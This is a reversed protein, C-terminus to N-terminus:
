TAGEGRLTEMLRRVKEAIKRTAQALLEEAGEQDTGLPDRGVDWELVTTSYPIESVHSRLDGGLSVIVHYASLRDLNSDLATPELRSTDFRNSEMFDLCRPDVAEAVAWGASAYRGSEPYAKRAYAEALQSYCDNKEDVFLVQYVKPPKIEGTVTFLTEECINKSQDVVRALRVFVALLAFLDQLPRRDEEGEQLLDAFVKHFTGAAQDAMAVTGRALEVNAENWARLAQSLVRRSQDAMLEVDRRVAASPPKSLRLGERCVSVAYDGVRELEINLRLVSSVFRLHGASPLHRAVFAHCQRDLARVERNIPLDALITEGALGRDGSLLAHVASQQAELVKSGVEQIRRRIEILDAELREEYHSM